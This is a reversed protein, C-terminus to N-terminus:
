LVSRGLPFVCNLRLLEVQLLDAADIGGEFLEAGRSDDSDQSHCICCIATSVDEEM